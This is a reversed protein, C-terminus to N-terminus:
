SHQAFFGETLHLDQVTLGTVSAPTVFLSPVNKTASRVAEDHFAHANDDFWVFPAPDNAQDAIIADAKWQTWEAKNKAEVNLNAPLVRGGVLGGGLENVATLIHEYENWTTLWILQIGYTVRLNDIFDVVTPSYTIVSEPAIHQSGEILVTFQEVIEHAPEHANFVGDWDAYLKLKSPAPTIFQTTM